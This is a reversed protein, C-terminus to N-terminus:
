LKPITIEFVGNDHMRSTMRETRLNGHPFRIKQCRDTCIELGGTQTKITFEQDRIRHWMIVKVEKDDELVDILPEEPHAAFIPPQATTTSPKSIICKRYLLSEIPDISIGNYDEHDPQSIKRALIKCFIDM